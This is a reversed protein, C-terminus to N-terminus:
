QTDPSETYRYVRDSEKGEEEVPGDNDPDAIRNEEDQAKSVQMIVVMGKGAGDGSIWERIEREIGRPVEKTREITKRGEGASQANDSRAVGTIDSRTSRLLRGPLPLLSSRRKVGRLSLPQRIKRFARTIGPASQDHPSIYPCPM